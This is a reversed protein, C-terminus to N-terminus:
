QSLFKRLDPKPELKGNLHQLVKAALTRANIVTAEILGQHDSAPCEFSANPVGDDINWSVLFRGDSLEIRHKLLVSPDTQNARTVMCYFENVSGGKSFVPNQGGWTLGIEHWIESLNELLEGSAKAMSPGADDIERATASLNLEKFRAIEADLDDVPSNMESTLEKLRSIFEKANKFRYDLRQQFAILFINRLTPWRKDSVIEPRFPSPTMEHPHLGDHNVLVRPARGSLMFYLLGAAMALDSRNDRHNGGPAFEPLRLFRNGLEKDVPTSYNAESSSGLSAIGFDVLVPDGWNGDRIIVNDPKLDRHNLLLGHGADLIDLIRSVCLISDDLSPPSSQTIEMMTPGEIYSMVVYLEEAKDEWASENSDLIEPVGNGEMARLAGVEALFRYRREKRQSAQEHLRKMAGKRGDVKHKVPEVYGQGGSKSAATVFWDTISM